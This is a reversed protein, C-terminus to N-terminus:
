FKLEVRKGGAAASAYIGQVIVMDRRGMEGPVLNPAGALVHQAYADIQLAQQSRLPTANVPGRSTAAHIGGYNFAPRTEFWGKAAEARFENRNDNYSTFGQCRAGNAWELTWEISEEVDVFFDPRQKPLERATVAVPLTEDNAMMSEQVVYVGLDMLPGGGALKREARWVKAGMTFAFGGNMKLFPGFEQTHALRRLEEHFPDYHLRYGIALQVGASKCAAIM